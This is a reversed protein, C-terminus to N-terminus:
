PTREENAHIVEDWFRISRAMTAAWSPLPVGFERHLYGPLDNGYPIIDTQYVSIVPNGARHPEAPIYRHMYIPILTPAKAIATTAVALADTLTTPKPGWSPLWFGNREIDFRISELPWNMVEKIEDQSGRWNPFGKGGPVARHLFAKLDPPVHVNYTSRIDAIEQDSLGPEFSVGKQKLVTVVTELYGAEQQPTPDKQSIRLENDV